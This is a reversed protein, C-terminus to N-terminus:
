HSFPNQTKDTSFGDHSKKDLTEPEAAIATTSKTTCCKTIENIALKEDVNILNFSRQYPEYQTVSEIKLSTDVRIYYTNGADLTKSVLRLGSYSGGPELEFKYDGPRLTLRTNKGNKIALKYEDNIYLDPSYMANAM